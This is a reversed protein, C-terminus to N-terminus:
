LAMQRGYREATDIALMLKALQKAPLMTLVDSSAIRSLINAIHKVDLNCYTALASFKRTTM